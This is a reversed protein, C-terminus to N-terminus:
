YSWERIRFDWELDPVVFPAVFGGSAADVHIKVDLGTEKQKIDLLRNLEKIDETHHIYTIPSKKPSGSHSLTSVTNAPRTHNHLVLFLDAM